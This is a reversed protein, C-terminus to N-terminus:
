DTRDLYTRSPACRPTCGRFSRSGSRAKSSRAADVNDRRSGARCPSAVAKAVCGCGRTQTGSGCAGGGGSAGELGGLADYAKHTLQTRNDTEVRREYLQQLTFQLLPLSDANKADALLRDDLARK